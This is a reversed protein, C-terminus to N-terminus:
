RYLGAGILIILAVYIFAPRTRRDALIDLFLGRRLISRQGAKSETM